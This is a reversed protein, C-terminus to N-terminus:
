RSTKNYPNGNNEGGKKNNDKGEKTHYWNMVSSMGLFGGIVIGLQGTLLIIGTM